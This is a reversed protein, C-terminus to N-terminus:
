VIQIEFRHSKRRYGSAIHRDFRSVGRRFAAALASLADKTNYTKGITERVEAYRM